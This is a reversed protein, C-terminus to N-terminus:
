LLKKKTEEYYSDLEINIDLTEPEVDWLIGCKETNGYINENIRSKDFKSPSQLVGVDKKNEGINSAYYENNNFVLNNCDSGKKSFIPNKSTKYFINNIFVIDTPPLNGKGIGLGLDCENNIFVNNIIQLKKVQQYQPKSIISIACGTSDGGNIEKFLNNKIIHNEGTVRIGGSEDVNNQLFKNNVVYNSFGSRLTITAKCSNITNNAIINDSSKVSIMEIEGDCKEFSNELIISKSKIKNDENRLQITEFGNGRGQKRNKIVNHDILIYDESKSNPDKQIWRDSKSYDHFYCHDIRNFKPYIMLVPGNSNNLSIDCGCLRNGKGRIEISNEVGGDKMVINALTTYSGSLNIKINGTLIVKGPNKAKITIRSKLSGKCDIKVNLNNHSGDELWVKDGAKLKSLISKINLLSVSYEM